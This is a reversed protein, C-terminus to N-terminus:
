ANPKRWLRGQGAITSKGRPLAVRARNPGRGSVTKADWFERLAQEPFSITVQPGGNKIAQKGAGNIM